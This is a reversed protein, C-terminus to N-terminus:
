RPSNNWHVLVIFIWFSFPGHSLCRDVFFVCLVLSRTVRVGIFGPTFESTGSPYATGAGCTVGTTNILLVLVNLVIWIFSTMSWSFTCLISDKLHVNQILKARKLTTLLKRKRVTEVSIRIPFISSINQPPLWYHFHMAYCVVIVNM